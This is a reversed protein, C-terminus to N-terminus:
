RAPKGANGPESCKFTVRKGCTATGVTSAPSGATMAFPSSKNRQEEEM